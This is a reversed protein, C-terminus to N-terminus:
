KSQWGCQGSASSSTTTSQYAYGILGGAIGYSDTMVPGSAASGAITANSAYGVLGGAWVGGNVAVTSTVGGISGGYQLGVLGGVKGIGSVSGSLSLNSLGGSAVGFLGVNKGVARNATMNSIAYGGGNFVGRFGYSDTPLEASLVFTTGDYVLRGGDTGLPVWGASSWIGAYSAPTGAVIRGTEALDINGGLAYAGALTTGDYGVLQLQHSNALVIQGAANTTVLPNGAVPVEFALFPRTSNGPMFVFGAPTATGMGSAPALNAYASAKFAYNTAASQAPDSTIAIATGPDAYGAAANQGTSYSDWYANSLSGSANEGLLGGSYGTGPTVFGTAYINDYVGSSLFGVLGGVDNSGSVAGTAYAYRVTANSSSGVLGGVSTGGGGIVAGTAYANTLSGSFLFGILGGFGSSSSTATVTGTAYLSSNTGRAIGILGGVSGTGSVAGTAYANTITGGANQSGVLGGDNTTTGTVSVASYVNTLTGSNQVGVLGGVFTRGAVAGNTLGFNSITGTSTLGFLGVRSGPNGSLARNISLRDIVYSNGNLVGSFGTAGGPVFASGDWVLGAGDTGIPVFGTGAWMGAYSGPSGVTARGTEALNITGGLAYNGSLRTGDYSILQLQHGNTLVLAGGADTGTTFATPVEFALFPRTGIAGLFVFGTPTATSLGSAATLNAYASAKFAYNAAAAQTPDSTVATVGAANSVSGSAQTQGTTYTDWYSGVIAHSPDNVSSGALGGVLTTGTVAGTAYSNNITSGTYGILGGTYDATSSVSGTAYSNYLPTASVGILGGTYRGTSSVAGTAYVDSVNGSSYGVLGGSSDATSTVAGTAYSRTLFTGGALQGVLGGVQTRGSVVTGAYVNSITGGLYYGVLGGVLQNGTVNGGALGVNSIGGSAVGFLGVYNAAPRNITVARIVHSRGDFYGALPASINGIPNFGLGANWAATGSADIDNALAWSNTRYASSAVGQLGYIDAVVFPAGSSGAGATVRLFNANGVTFRFDRAAFAPLTGNQTWNGNTLNFVGVDVAGSASITGTNAVANGASLTLGGAAGTIAANLAINNYANLTLTNASIWTIASNIAINGLGGPTVPILGGPTTSATTSTTTLTVNSTALNSAITAAAPADVILDEPDILWTGGTGSVSRTDVTLGTFDVHTGSTEILGGIGTVGTARASLAGNARVTGGDGGLLVISGGDGVASDTVIRGSMNIVNRVADKVTAASLEVRGGSAAIQGTMEILATDGATVISTPVAVRMFGDGNLDLTISEGSGLAVKGLPVTITGSNLVLGGLLAVYGGSGANITGKNSVRRSAGSGTFVLRGANFEADAIDLTSAAFGGGTQVTGSSTIAIGNPNVLYVAGNAVINGAITSSAAGTVRNLTASGANPQAFVVTKDAGVDFGAWNIVARDTTQTISVSSPATTITASGSAVTGGVPLTATQAQAIGPLATILAFGICHTLNSTSLARALLMARAGGNIETNM